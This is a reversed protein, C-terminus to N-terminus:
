GGDDDDEKDPRSQRLLVRRMEKSHKAKEELVTIREFAKPILSHNKEVHDIRMTLKPVDDLQKIRVELESEKKEVTELMKTLSTALSALKWTSTIVVGLLTIAIGLLYYTDHSM